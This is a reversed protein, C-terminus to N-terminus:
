WTIVGLALVCVQEVWYKSVIEGITEWTMADRRLRAGMRRRDQLVSGGAGLYEQQSVMGYVAGLRERQPVM